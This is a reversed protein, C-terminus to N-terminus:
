ARNWTRNVREWEGSDLQGAGDEDEEEEDYRSHGAQQQYNIAPGAQQGCGHAHSSASDDYSNAGNPYQVRAGGGQKGYKNRAELYHSEGTEERDYSAGGGERTYSSGGQSSQQQLGERSRTKSHVPAYGNTQGQNHGMGEATQPLVPAYEQTAIGSYAAPLQQQQQQMHLPPAPESYSAASADSPVPEDSLEAQESLEVEYPVGAQGSSSRAPLDRAPSAIKTKSSGRKFIGRFKGGKKTEPASFSTTTDTGLADGSNGSSGDDREPAVEVPASSVVNNESPSSSGRKSRFGPISPGKGKFMNKFKGGSRDAPARNAGSRDVPATSYASTTTAPPIETPALARTAARKEPTNRIANVAAKQRELGAAIEEPTRIRPPPKPAEQVVEAQNLATDDETSEAKQKRGIWNRKAGKKAAPKAVNASNRLTPQPPPPPLIDDDKPRRTLWGKSKSQSGTDVEPALDEGHERTEGKSRRRLLGRSKRGQAIPAPQEVEGHTDEASGKKNFMGM